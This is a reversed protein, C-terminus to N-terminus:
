RAAAKGLAEAADALAQRTGDVVAAFRLFGHPMGLYRVLRVPVGARHLRHAYAEGEDRLPDYEAERRARPRRVARSAIM